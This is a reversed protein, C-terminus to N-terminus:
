ETCQQDIGKNKREGNKICVGGLVYFFSLFLNFVTLVSLLSLIYIYM